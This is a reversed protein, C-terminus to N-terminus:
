KRRCRILVMAAGLVGFALAAPEPVDTIVGAAAFESNHDIVAWVRQNIPDVGFDGLVFDNAPDYAGIFKEQHAGGDSNGAVANVWQGDSNLWALFLDTAKQGAALSAENYDIQLVFKDTQTGQVVTVDSALQGNDPPAYFEAPNFSITVSRNTSAVGGILTAVTFNSLASTSILGAYTDGQAFGGSDGPNIPQLPATTGTDRAAVTLVLASRTFSPNLVIDGLRFGRYDSFDGTRSSFTMATIQTGIPSGDFAGLSLTGELAATGSIDVTSNSGVANVQVQSNGNLVLNGNIQVHFDSAIKDLHVTPATITADTVSNAIISGGTIGADAHVVILSSGIGTTKSDLFIQAPAGIVHLNVGNPIPLNSSASGFSVASGPDATVTFADSVGSYNGGYNWNSPTVLKTGGGHFTIDNGGNAVAPNFSQWQGGLTVDGPAAVDLFGGNFNIDNSINGHVRLTGGFLNVTSSGIGGIGDLTGGAMMTVGSYSNAGRLTWTDDSFKVVSISGTIAGSITGGATNDPSSGGIAGVPDIAGAMGSLGLLSNSTGNIAGSITLPSGWSDIELKKVVSVTSDIEGGNGAFLNGGAGKGPDFTISAGMLTVNGPGFDLTGVTVPKDIQVGGSVNLGTNTDTLTVSMGASTVGAVDNWSYQAYASLSIVSLFTTLAGALPCNFARM